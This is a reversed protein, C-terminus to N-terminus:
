NKRSANNEKDNSNEKPGNTNKEEEPEESDGVNTNQEKEQDEYQYTGEETAANAAQGPSAGAEYEAALKALLEHIEKESLGDRLAQKTVRVAIGPPLGSAVLAQVQSLTEDTAGAKTVVNGIAVPTLAANYADTIATLPDTIAGSMVDDLTEALLSVALAIEEELTLFEWRLLALLEMGQKPTLLSSAFAASLADILLQKQEETALDNSTVADFARQQGLLLLREGLEAVPDSITGGILGSLVESLLAVAGAVDEEVILSVWDVLAIAALAEDPSMLGLDFATGFLDTMQQQSEPTALPNSAMVDIIPQLTSSPTQVEQSAAAWVAILLLVVLGLLIRARKPLGAIM